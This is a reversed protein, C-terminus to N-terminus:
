VDKYSMSKPKLQNILCASTTGAKLLLSITGLLHFSM